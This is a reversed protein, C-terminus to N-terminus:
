LKAYRARVCCYVGYAILGLGLVVLLVAGFPLSVLSQLAGDLGTAKSPDATVAAIVFLVGAIGVVIGKAIYGTMGTVVAARSSVTLDDLFTKRAGKAVFYAGIGIVALGVVVLLVVGAPTALLAASLSTTSQSSSSSGGTAFRLATVAVAIYAVAKGGESLRDKWGDATVATLVSFLGLAILGTAILWLLALGLPNGALAGLAGSQDAEQDSGGVAIAIAIAGILAHVVGNMAYGTRAAGRFWPQRRITRARSRAQTGTM